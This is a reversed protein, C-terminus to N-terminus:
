RKMLKWRIYAAITHNHLCDSDAFDSDELIKGYGMTHTKEDRSNSKVDGPWWSMNCKKRVHIKIKSCKQPSVSVDVGVTCESGFTSINERRKRLSNQIM